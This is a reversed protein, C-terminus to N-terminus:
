DRSSFRFNFNKFYKFLAPDPPLPRPQARLIAREVAKDFAPNGSAKTLTVSLVSGDPRLWVDLEAQVNEALDPSRVLFRRVKAAIRKYYDDRISKLEPTDQAPQPQRLGDADGPAPSQQAIGLSSFAMALMALVTKM